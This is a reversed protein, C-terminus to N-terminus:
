VLDEWVDPKLEYDFGKQVTFVVGWGFCNDTVPGVEGESTGIQVGDFIELHADNLVRKLIDDCIQKCLDFASEKNEGPKVPVVVFFSCDYNEVVSDHEGAKEVEPTKLFLCPYKLGNKNAITLGDLNFREFAREKKNNPDHKILQHNIAYFQFRDVLEAVKM